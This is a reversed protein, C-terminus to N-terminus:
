HIIFNAEALARALYTGKGLVTQLGPPLVSKRPTTLSAQFASMGVITATAAAEGGFDM